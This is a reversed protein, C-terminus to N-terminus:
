GGCDRTENVVFEWLGVGMLLQVMPGEAVLKNHADASGLSSASPTCTRPLSVWVVVFIATPSSYHTHCVM